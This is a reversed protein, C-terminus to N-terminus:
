LPKEETDWRQRGYPDKPIIFVWYIFARSTSVDVPHREILEIFIAAEWVIAM